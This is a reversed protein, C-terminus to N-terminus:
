RLIDIPSVRTARRAPMYSALLAIALFAPPAVLFTLPDHGGITYLVSGLLRTLAFAAIWGASVGALSLAFGQKLVLRFIDARSAGLVLRIGFEQGRQAVSYSVVGYIGIVSLVLATLAFAGVLILLFRPQARGADMLDEATQIKTVPQDPDIAAIQARVAATLSQPAVATRVILNMEGWPLQAFPLYLQPQTAQELGRNKVDAAVGVVQAPVPRKGIAVHQTLPDQHPWFQRAFSENVVVVPPSLPQDDASLPRGRRMPVRMTRFWQPSVAEIDVFPRKALPVEPQGQPLVPTIRIFSLPEAASLAADKVGPLASVRRLLEDFFAIQQEPKAYRQASLSVNMTLLSNADFGPDVRLLRVFSRVLLGAAILLVLSLAVQGVVLVHNMRMRRRGTSAGRGEERLAANLDIHALQLAPFMGFLVGSLLSILATFGLVRLDLRVPLDAPMQASGWHMLAQTAGWALAIGLAGAVLALVMSETLLQAAIAGRSAGLAARVAVERRRALARSLLLSAVNGCAILLVVGVAAMLMLVRGRLNGVVLDRLPTAKMAMDPSADPLSPNQERYQQNLIALEENAQAATTDGRLRAVMNLYGVGLRLRAAPILSYEFYRPMWVDAPGVFPFQVNAPLVGVVTYASEDMHITQGVISPDGHFRTHWLANGLVVVAKGEPRGEEATFARGLQPEVGLLAFFNPSVRAVPVQTPDGNGTLNLDDNAWVAVSEFSRSRDRVTEFRLLNSPRDGDRGVTQVSVLRAPDRYPFPRLLLADTVTFIASNAGIGLALTVVVALMFGPTKTMTRFAFQVNRLLSHM